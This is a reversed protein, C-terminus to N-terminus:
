PASRIHPCPYDAPLPVLARVFLRALEASDAPPAGVLRRGAPETALKPPTGHKAWAQFRAPDWRPTLEAFEPFVQEPSQGSRKHVALRDALAEDLDFGFHFLSILRRADHKRAALDIRRAAERAVELAAWRATRPTLRAFLAQGGFESYMDTRWWGLRPEDDSREGAWAVLLQCALITDLQTPTPM